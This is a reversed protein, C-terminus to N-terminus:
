DKLTPIRIIFKTGEGYESEAYIKGKHDTIIKKVYALGLGFGKVNHVNGTPVRYFKEFIRKLDNQKIGIGNDEISVFLWGKENWTDITLILKGSKSYKVANEMLNYIVNTFHISDVMAWSNRADLHVIIKGGTNEVKLSFNAVCGRIIENIDMEKLHLSTQEKEFMAVQLVKEVQFSLRQTEDKIVKSVHKLMHPTKGIGEDKLMQAALSITSIPTKLEHTMNNVFDTKIEALRKERSFIIIVLLFTVILIGTLLIAPYLMLLSRSIYRSYDPFWISLFYPNSSNESPFLQQTFITADEEATEDSNQDYIVNGDKDTISLLFRLKLGNNELENALFVEIMNVDIRELIPKTSADRIWRLTIEDLIAKRHSFHEKLRERLMKTTNEISNKKNHKASINMQTEATTIDNANTAFKSASEKRLVENFYQDAETEELTRIVQSLSRRVTSDLRDKQIQITQQLYSFQITLLGFFATGMFIALITITRKKM